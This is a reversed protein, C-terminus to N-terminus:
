IINIAIVVVESLINLCLYKDRSFCSSQMNLFYKNYILDVKIDKFKRM